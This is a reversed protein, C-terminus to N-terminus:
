YGKGAVWGGDVCLTVGQVFDSDGGCLFIAAPALENPQGWRRLPTNEVILSAFAEDEFYSATLPTEIVGPAIANCHIGQPGLEVAMARTLGIIGAKSAAYAVRNSMALVGAISAINLIKGSGQGLMVRLTARSCIFTGTLNVDVTRRWTEIDHDVISAQHRVGANNVLFDLRGLGEEAELVAQEVRKEDTIDVAMGLGDGALSEAAAQVGEEDRDFLAVRAGASAFAGAIHRGIGSAAGTIIGARGALPQSLEEERFLRGV